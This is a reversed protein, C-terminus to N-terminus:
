PFGGCNGPNPRRFRSLDRIWMSRTGTCIAPISVREVYIRAFDSFRVKEDKPLAYKRHLTDSKMKILVKEAEKKSTSVPKRIRMGNVYIDV